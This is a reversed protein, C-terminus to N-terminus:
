GFKMFRIFTEHYTNTRTLWKPVIDSIFQEITFIGRAKDCSSM